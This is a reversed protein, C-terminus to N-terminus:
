QKIFKRTNITNGKQLRFFYIGKKFHAVPITIQNLSTPYEIKQELIISGQENIIQILTPTQFVTNIEVHLLNIVPNPYIKLPNILEEKITNETVVDNDFSLYQFESFSVIESNEGIKNITFGGNTFVINRINKTSIATRVETTKNIILASQASINFLCAVVFLTTCYERRFKKM